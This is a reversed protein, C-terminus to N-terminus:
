ECIPALARVESVHPGLDEPLSTVAEQDAAPGIAFLRDRAISGSVLPHILEPDGAYAAAVGTGSNSLYALEEILAVSADGEGDWAWVDTEEGIPFGNLGLWVTVADTMPQDGIRNESPALSLYLIRYGLHRYAAVVDAAGARAVPQDEPDDTWKAEEDPDGQTAAGFVGFAVTQGVDACSPLTTDGSTSSSGVTVDVSSSSDDSDGGNGCAAAAILLSVGVARVTNRRVGRRRTAEGM